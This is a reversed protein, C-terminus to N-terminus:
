KNIVSWIMAAIGIVSTVVMAGIGAFAAISFNQIHRNTSDITNKIDSIKADTAQQIDRISQRFEANKVENAQRIEANQQHMEAIEAHRMENQQRMESIFDDVRRNTADVKQALVNVVTHLDSYKGELNEIREDATTM